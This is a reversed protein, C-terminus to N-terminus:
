FDLRAKLYAGREHESGPSWEVHGKDLLNQVLLSLELHRSVRWGLRMDVATYDRVANNPLEDYHRVMFDLDTTHGLDFGARLKWWGRPDRAAESPALDVAGPAVTLSQHLRVFGGSLRAWESPRWTTWGEFGSTRGERDNVIVAGGPAPRLSRLKEHDHHFGTLSFSLRANPQARYGVELVNSLESEFNPGGALGPQFFERDIRSPARVARSLATWVLQGRSPLWGLRASPLFEAGTYSNSEIKGGLTLDLDDRLAIEDQVFVHNRNLNREGPLFQLPGINDVHDRYHRLGFGWLLRHRGRARLAHQVDLDYTDLREKFIASHHRTTRELYAQVTLSGSSDLDRTWRGLLNAGQFEREVPGLEGGTLDGQLTFGHTRRGWDARFGAQALDAGDGVPRAGPLLTTDRRTAKAYARYSGGEFEGGYRFAADRQTKGSGVVALAGQTDTSRKTIVNIVGNVANAGWLTAGPGSIVEIREVDELLVDQAEWFTGAFLPTYVTRGDVLVLMKNAITSNFGRASIAYQNADPRAVQLNPALRLAEPLSLAGSRRIDEGSLVFVSAPARLLPEERGSVTSVTINALQELSLDALAAATQVPAAAHAALASCCALLLLAALSKKHM